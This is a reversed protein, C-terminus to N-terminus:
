ATFLLFYAIYALSYWMDFVYFLEEVSNLGVVSLILCRRQPLCYIELAICHWHLGIQRKPQRLSESDLHRSFSYTTHESRSLRSILQWWCRGDMYRMRAIGELTKVCWFEWEVQMWVLRLVEVVFRLQPFSHLCVYSQKTDAQYLDVMGVVQNITCLLVYLCLVIFLYLHFM